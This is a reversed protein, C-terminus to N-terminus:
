NELDDKGVKLKRLRKILPYMDQQSYDSHHDLLINLTEYGKMQDFNLEDCDEPSDCYGLPGYCSCHSLSMDYWLGDKKFIAKGAGEYYGVSYWYVFVEPDICKRVIEIEQNLLESAEFYEDYDYEVRYVKM